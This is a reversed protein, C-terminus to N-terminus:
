NVNHKRIFIMDSQAAFQNEISFFCTLEFSVYSVRGTLLKRISENMWQSTSKMNKSVPSVSKSAPQSVSQSVDQNVQQCGSQSASMRFSQSIDQIVSKVDQNVSQYVSHSVSMRTSQSVNQNVQQCESQSVSMRTSQSVNQNFPQCESQSVSMRISQSVDQNVTQYGPHRIQLDPRKMKHPFHFVTEKNALLRVKAEQKKYNTQCKVLACVKDMTRKKM